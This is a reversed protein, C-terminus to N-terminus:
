NNFGGQVGAVDTFSRNDNILQPNLAKWAGGDISTLV